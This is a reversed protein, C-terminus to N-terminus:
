AGGGVEDDVYTDFPNLISVVGPDLHRRFWMELQHPDDIIKTSLELMTFGMSALISAQERDKAKRIFTDHTPGQVQLAIRHFELVFDVVLGGLENRGGEKASQFTFDIGEVYGRKILELYVIREPLTGSVVSEPMARAEDPDGPIQVMTSPFIRRHLTYWDPSQKLLGRNVVDRREMRLPRYTVQPVTIREQQVRNQPLYKKIRFNLPKKGTTPM